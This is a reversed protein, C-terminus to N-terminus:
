FIALAWFPWSIALVFVYPALWEFFSAANFTGAVSIRRQIVMLRISIGVIAIAWIVVIDVTRKVVCFVWTLMVVAVSGIDVAGAYVGVVIGVVAGRAKGARYRRRETVRFSKRVCFRLPKLKLLRIRFVEADVEGVEKSAQPHLISPPQWQWAAVSSHRGYLWRDHATANVLIGM